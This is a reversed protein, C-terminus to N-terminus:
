ADHFIRALSFSFGPAHGPADTKFITPAALALRADPSRGPRLGWRVAPNGPQM